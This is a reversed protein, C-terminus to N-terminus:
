FEFIQLESITRCLHFEKGPLIQRKNDKNALRTQCISKSSFIGVVDQSHTMRMRSLSIYSIVDHYEMSTLTFSLCMKSKVLFTVKTM